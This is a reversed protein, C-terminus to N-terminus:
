NCRWIFANNNQLTKKNYANEIRILLLNSTTIRTTIDISPHWDNRVLINQRFLMYGPLYSGSM